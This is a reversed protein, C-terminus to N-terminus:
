AERTLTLTNDCTDIRTTFKMGRTLATYRATAVASHCARYDVMSFVVTAGVRIATVDDVTIKTLKDNAM